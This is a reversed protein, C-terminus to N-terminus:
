RYVAIGFSERYEILSYSNRTGTFESQNENEVRQTISSLDVNLRQYPESRLIALVEESIVGATHLSIAQFSAMYTHYTLREDHFSALRQSFVEVSVEDAAPVTKIYVTAKSKRCIVGEPIALLFGHSVLPELFSAGIVSSSKKLSSNAYLSSKLFVLSPHLLISVKYTEARRLMNQQKRTLSLSGETVTSISDENVNALVARSAGDGTANLRVSPRVGRGYQGFWNVKDEDYLKMLSMYQALNQVTVNHSRKCINISITLRQERRIIPGFNRAAIKSLRHFFTLDAEGNGFTVYENLYDGIMDFATETLGLLGTVRYCVLAM